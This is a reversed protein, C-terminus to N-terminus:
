TARRADEETVIQRLTELSIVWCGEGGFRFTVGDTIAGCSSPGPAYFLPLGHGAIPLEREDAAKRYLSM